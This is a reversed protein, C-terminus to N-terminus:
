TPAGPRPGGVRSEQDAGRCSDEARDLPDIYGSSLWVNACGTYKTLMERTDDIM